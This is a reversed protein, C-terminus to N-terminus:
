RGGEVTIQRNPMWVMLAGQGLLDERLAVSEEFADGCTILAVQKGKLLRARGAAQVQARFEAVNRASLVVIQSHDGRSPTFHLREALRPVDAEELFLPKGIHEPRQQEVALI